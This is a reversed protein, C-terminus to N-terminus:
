RGITPDPAAQLFSERIEVRVKSSNHLTATVAIHLYQTGIARHTATQTVTLHPEFDRFLQLKRYAFVAGAIIVVATVLPQVIDIAVGFRGVMTVDTLWRNLLWVAIVVAIAVGAVLLLDFALRRYPRFRSPLMPM